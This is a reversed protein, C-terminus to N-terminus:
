NVISNWDEPEQKKRAINIQKNTRKLCPRMTYVQIPGEAELTSFTCASVREAESSQFVCGSHKPKRIDKSM